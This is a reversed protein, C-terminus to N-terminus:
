PKTAKPRDLCNSSNLSGGCAGTANTCTNHNVMGGCNANNTCGLANFGTNGGAIVVDSQNCMIDLVEDSLIVRGFKDISLINDNDTM